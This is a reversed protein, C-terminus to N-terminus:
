FLTKWFSIKRDVNYIDKYPNEKGNIWDILISGAINSYTMGSGGYSFMYFINTNKSEGIFAIGDQSNQIVGSWYRIESFESSGFLKKTYNRIRNFSIDHDSKTAEFTDEGGIVLSDFGDKKDIRFYHYPDLRDEFTSESLYGSPIKYELVYSRYMTMKSYLNKPRDFPVHTASIVKKAKIESGNKLVVLVRDKKNNIKIVDTNEAIIAGREVAIKALATLYKIVHFKAQNPLDIYGFKTFKFKNDKKYEAKVGLKNFIEVIKILNKEEGSNNAYIYNSCRVFDCEIKEEKIIKEVRNIADGHSSLILQTKKEGWVKIMAIPDTDLAQTLFGTTCETVWEGLKFKECLVVNKSEKSLLYAATIGSIGGGVIVYDTEKPLVSHTYSERKIGELWIQYNEGPLDM